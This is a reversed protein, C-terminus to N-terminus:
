SEIVIKKVEPSEFYLDIDDQLPTEKWMTKDGVPLFVNKHVGLFAAWWAFTSQSIAINESLLLTKFDNMGRRDCTHTFTNVHGESSLTCGDAILRQVTECKSNDTVIIVDTFNSEDILKKYNAYGLFSNILVYDTERIHLVLKEHNITQPLNECNFIKKIINRHPLFYEARQAFSDIIVNDRTKIIFDIDIYNNGFSRTRYTNQTPVTKLNSEIGFNPLKDSFLPKNAQKALVYGLAYQFMRNGMRGYPDFEVFINGTADM